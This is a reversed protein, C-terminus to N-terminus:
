ECGTGSVLLNDGDVEFNIDLTEEIIEKVEIFSVESFDVTIDCNNVKENALVVQKRFSYALHEIVDKMSSNQFSVNLMQNDIDISRKFFKNRSKIYMGEEGQKLMIGKHTLTFFSVLGESVNVFITDNGPLANINFITGLDVVRVDDINVQFPSSEDHTVEFEAKGSFTFVREEKNLQSLASNAELQIQSGDDLSYTLGSNATSLNPLEERSQFLAVSAFILIGIAAAYGLLSRMKFSGVKQSKNDTKIEAKVKTWALNADVEDSLDFSCLDDVKKMENYFRMNEDSEKTWEKIALLELPTASGELERAIFDSINQNTININKM